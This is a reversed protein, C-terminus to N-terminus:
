ARGKVLGALAVAQRGSLMEFVVVGLAWIDARRDVPKGKAQEPAMYAATWLIVGMETMPSTFAPSNALNASALPGPGSESM